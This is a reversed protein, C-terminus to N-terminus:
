RIRFCKSEPKGLRFQDPIPNKTVIEYQCVLFDPGKTFYAFGRQYNVEYNTKNPATIVKQQEASLVSGGAFAYGDAVIKSIPGVMESTQQAHGNGSLLAAIGVVVAATAIQISSKM